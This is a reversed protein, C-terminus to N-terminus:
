FGATARAGILVTRGPAQFNLVNEYRKDFLNEIRANMAL